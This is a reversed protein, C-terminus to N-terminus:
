SAQALHQMLASGHHNLAQRYVSADYPPREQWCRYLIRLWPCALARVAAQPTKGKARQQQYYGQAWFAPRISEAAWAVLTQRLCQPCPLRWHVWSTTGSRATV